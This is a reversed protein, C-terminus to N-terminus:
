AAAGSTARYNHAVREQQVPKTSSPKSDIMQEVSETLNGRILGIDTLTANDLRSLERVTRNITLRRHIRDLFTMNASRLYVSNTLGLNNRCRHAGRDCRRLLSGNQDIFQIGYSTRRSKFM